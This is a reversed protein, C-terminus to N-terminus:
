HKHTIVSVNLYLKKVSFLSLNKRQFSTPKKYLELKTVKQKQAAEIEDYEMFTFCRTSIYKKKPKYHKFEFFIADGCSISDLPTQIHVTQGFIVHKGEVRNSKKTNQTREKSIGTKSVLSVTVFPDIYTPADKLGISEILISITQQGSRVDKPPPLLDNQANEDFKEEEITVKNNSDSSAYVNIGSKVRIHEHAEKGTFLSEFAKMVNKAENTADVSDLSASTVAKLRAKIVAKSKAIIAREDPSLDLEDAKALDKLLAMYGESAELGQGWQDYNLAKELLNKWRAKHNIRKSM